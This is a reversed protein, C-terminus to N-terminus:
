ITICWHSQCSVFGAKEVKSNSSLEDDNRPIPMFAAKPTKQASVQDLDLKEINKRNTICKGINIFLSSGVPNVCNQSQTITRM